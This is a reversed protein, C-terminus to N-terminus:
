PVIPKQADPLSLSSLASDVLSEIANLKHTLLELEKHTVPPQESLDVKSRLELVEGALKLAATVAARELSRNPGSAANNIQENVLNAALRIKTENEPSSAFQLKQGALDIVFKHQNTDSM